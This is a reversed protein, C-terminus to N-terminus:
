HIEKIEVGNWQFFTPVKVVALEPCKAKAEELLEQYTEPTVKICTMPKGLKDRYKFVLHDILDLDIDGHRYPCENCGMCCCWGRELHEKETM